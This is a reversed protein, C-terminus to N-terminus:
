PCIGTTKLYFGVDISVVINGNTLNTLRIAYDLNDQTVVETIVGGEGGAAKPGVGSAITYELITTGANITPDTLANFPAAPGNRNANYVALAVGGTLQADEILEVHSAGGASAMFRFHAHSGVPISAGIIFTAAAGLILNVDSAIYFNGEHIEHHEYEINIMANVLCDVLKEYSIMNAVIVPTLAGGFINHDRNLLDNDYENAM